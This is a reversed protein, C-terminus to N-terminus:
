LYSFDILVKIFLGDPTDISDIIKLVYGTDLDKAKYGEIRNVKRKIELQRQLERVKEENDLFWERYKRAERLEEYLEEIKKTLAQNAELYPNKDM